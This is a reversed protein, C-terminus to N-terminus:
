VINGGGLATSLANLVSVLLDLGMTALDDVLSGATASKVLIMGLFVHPLQVGKMKWALGVIVLVLLGTTLTMLAYPLVM